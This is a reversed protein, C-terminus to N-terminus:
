LRWSPTHGLLAALRQDHDIFHEDLRRRLHDPLPASPKANAHPLEEPRWHPLGLFELLRDWPEPKGSDFLEATELVLVRHEGILEHLRVIQKAYEGRGLYAHHRHHFSEYSPDARMRELEGALRSQELDLAAEFPETEFGRATEQKHASFARQVPDRVLVILRTKPLDAAIRHGAWPHFLYYPSAEGTIAPGGVRRNAAARIPFHAHYWRLGHQYAPTDFFHVGKHFLPPVVRPHGALAQFLSTTGCRQAGVILFDPLMRLAASAYGVTRVTARGLDKVADPARGRLPVSKPNATM